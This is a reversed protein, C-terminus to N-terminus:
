NAGAVAPRRQNFRNMAAELGERLVTEVADAATELLPALHELEEPRFAALVHAVADEGPQPRGVGLRVRVFDAGSCEMISAVGRHGGAGGGRKVRLQGYALDIDDHIVILSAAQPQLPLLAEGSTNMFREPEVLRVAQGAVGGEGIKLGPMARTLEIRWREALREIVMFGVNHRTAAYRRGPNGLGVVLYM